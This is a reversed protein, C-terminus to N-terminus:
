QVPPLVDGAAPAEQKAIKSPTAKGRSAIIKDWAEQTRGSVLEALEYKTGGFNALIHLADIVTHFPITIKQPNHPNPIGQMNVGAASLDYETIPTWKITYVKEGLKITPYEIGTGNQDM